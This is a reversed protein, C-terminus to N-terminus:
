SLVCHCLVQLKIFKQYHIKITLLIKDIGNSMTKTNKKFFICKYYIITIFTCTAPPSNTFFTYKAGLFQVIYNIFISHVVTREHTM